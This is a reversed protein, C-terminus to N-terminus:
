VRRCSKGFVMSLALKMSVAIVSLAVIGNKDVRREGLSSVRTCTTSSPRRHPVRPSTHRKIREDIRQYERNKNNENENLQNANYPPNGIVVSIKRHKPTQHAQREGRNRQSLNWHDRKCTHLGVNDLTDVFCLNPFEEYEGADGRLHSRDNLNAV